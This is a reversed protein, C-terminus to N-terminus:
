GVAEMATLAELQELMDGVEDALADHEALRPSEDVTIVETMMVFLDAEDMGKLANFRRKRPTRLLDAVARSVGFTDQLVDAADAKAAQERRQSTSLKAAKIPPASSAVTASQSAKRKAKSQSPKAAKRQTAKPKSVPAAKPQPAKPAALRRDTKVPDWGWSECLAVAKAHDGDSVARRVEALREAGSRPKASKASSQPRKPKSTRKVPQKAAQSTPTPKAEVPAVGDLTMELVAEGFTIKMTQM